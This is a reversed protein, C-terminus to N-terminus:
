ADAHGAGHEDYLLACRSSYQVSHSFICADFLQNHSIAAYPEKISRLYDIVQEQPLFFPPEHEIAVGCGLMQFRNDLVYELPSMRQLTYEKSYYTEFDLFIRLMM